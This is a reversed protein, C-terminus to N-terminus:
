ILPSEGTLYGRTHSNINRCKPVDSILILVYPASFVTASQKRSYPSLFYGPQHSWKECLFFLYSQHGRKAFILPSVAAAMCAQPVTIEQCKQFSQEKTGFESSPVAGETACIGPLCKQRGSLYFLNHSHHWRELPCQNLTSKLSMSFCKDTNQLIM